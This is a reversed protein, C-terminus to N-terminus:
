SAAGSGPMATLMHALTPGEPWPSPRLVSRFSGVRPAAGSSELAGSGLQASGITEKRVQTM